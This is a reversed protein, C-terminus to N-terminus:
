EFMWDSFKIPWLSVLQYNYKGEIIEVEVERSEPLINETEPVYYTDNFVINGEDDVTGIKKLEELTKIKKTM